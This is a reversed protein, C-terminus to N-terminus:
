KSKERQKPKKRHVTRTDEEDDQLFDPDLGLKAMEKPTLLKSLKTLREKEKAAKEKKEEAAEVKKRLADKRKHEPWWKAIEPDRFIKNRIGKTKTPGSGLREEDLRELETLAKCAIRALLHNREQANRLDRSAAVIQDGEDYSLCPM